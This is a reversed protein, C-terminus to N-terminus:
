FELSSTGSPKACLAHAASSAKATPARTGEPPLHLRDMALKRRDRKFLFVCTDPTAPPAAGDLRQLKRIRFIGHWEAFEDPSIHAALAGNATQLSDGFAHLAWVSTCVARLLRGAADSDAMGPMSLMAVAHKQHLASRLALALRVLATTNGQLWAPSGFDRLIVRLACGSKAAADLAAQVQQMVAGHQEAASCTVPLTFTTVTAAIDGAPASRSLDLAFCYGAPKNSSSQSGAAAAAAGHLRSSPM